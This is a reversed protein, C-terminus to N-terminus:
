FMAFAMSLAHVVAMPVALGWGMMGGMMMGGAQSIMGEGMMGRMAMMGRMGVLPIL